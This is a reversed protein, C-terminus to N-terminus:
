IPTAVPPLIKTQEELRKEFKEGLQGMKGRKAFSVVPPHPTECSRPLPPAFIKNKGGKKTLGGEIFLVYDSGECFKRCKERSKVSPAFKKPPSRKKPPPFLSRVGCVYFVCLKVNKVERIRLIAL